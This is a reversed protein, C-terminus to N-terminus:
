KVLVPVLSDEFTGNGLQGFENSGWCKVTEPDVIACTHNSGAALAIVNQIDKVAVPSESNDSTGNGLQGHTNMGWCVLGKSTQVCAHSQGTSLLNTLLADSIGSGKISGWCKVNGSFDLVCGGDDFRNGSVLAVDSTMGTVPIAPSNSYFALGGSSTIAQLENYAGSILKIGSLNSLVPVNANASSGNALQGMDNAGWCMTENQDNM